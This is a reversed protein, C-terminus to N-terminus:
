PAPVPNISISEIARNIANLSPQFETASLKNLNEVSKKLTSTVALKPAKLPCLFSLYYKGDSTLGQYTYFFDGNKVPDQEQMYCTLFAIGSGQKFPLYQVHNHFVESADASPLMPIQKMGKESKTAIIAKLQSIVKDFAVKEKGHFLAAYPQVPYILLQRQLYDTYDNLKDNDFTVRLHEPEGNMFPPEDSHNPSTKIYDVRTSKAIGTTDLSVTLKEVALNTPTKSSSAPNAQLQPCFAFTAYASMIVSVLVRM